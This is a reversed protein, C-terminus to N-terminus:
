FCQCCHRFYGNWISNQYLYGNNLYTQEASYLMAPHSSVLIWNVLTKFVNDESNVIRYYRGGFCFVVVFSLIGVAWRAHERFEGAGITVLLLSLGFAASFCSGEGFCHIHERLFPAVTKGALASFVIVLNFTSFYNSLRDQQKPLVFQDGGILPICPKLTGASLVILVLSVLSLSVQPPNLTPITSLLLLLVGFIYLCSTYLVM